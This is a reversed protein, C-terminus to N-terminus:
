GRVWGGPINLERIVKAPVGAVVVNEPVDKIVVSGAAVVSNKGITVGPLITCRTGIWVNDGIIVPKPLDTFSVGADLRHYDSDMISTRPGIRVDNGIQIRTTAAIGCGSNIFVNHGFLLKAGKEVTLQSAWPRGIMSFQRGIELEGYKNVTVKGLLSPADQFSYGWAGFKSMGKMKAILRTLKKKVSM